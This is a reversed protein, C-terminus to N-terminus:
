SYSILPRAPPLVDHWRESMHALRARSGRARDEAWMIQIVADLVEVPTSPRTNQTADRDGGNPLPNTGSKLSPPAGQAPVGAPPPSDPREGSPDRAPPGAVGNPNERHFQQIAEDLGIVLRQWPAIVSPVAGAVNMGPAASEPEDDGGPSGRGQTSLSQGASVATGPLFAAVATAETEVLEFSLEEGSSSITLTLVTAVLPLSSEHLAVLQTGPSQEPPVPSPAVTSPEVSLSLAVLEASERGATAAYFQVNGGTLASFALATPDPLNPNSTDSLLSLGDPGGEFLALEGDGANGVVLDEFGAGSDFAFATVPDLGGSSITTTVPDPGDFGSILTLDNSGANVTLLDNSGNHFPDVFIPGPTQGVPLTTPNQDDFFGQGRGPLSTVNNSQSNSVAIDLKGDHNFDGVATAVPGYGATLRPGDTMTWTSGTGQGLLVTIDNSGTNSVLLDPQGNLDAVTLGTPDTGVAFGETGGIPPGFQGDGLGPYILVDNGGSNAVILDPIGDGNMDAAKVAGPALLGTAQTGVVQRSASSQKTAGYVVTVKSLSQNAFVFDSVGDGKLDAVALAIFQKVPEFPRFTGDGNGTLILVDGVANGILLDPRGDRDIDAVALGSPESGANYTVPPAFGGEGNGLEISVGEGGLIVLDSVGDRNLDAVRLVELGTNVTPLAVPNAFRGQGLGALVAVADSGSNTAVLDVPAGTTFSAAAVGSTGELSQVVPSGSSADIGSLGTGARYPVPAAFTSDGLNRLVSVQGTSRNSVVLDLKGNGTTDIAEVDSVGLGVALTVPAGFDVSIFRPDVPGTFSTSFFVSLTGVGDNRLVLDDLGDGTLDAAIVQGPLGGTARTGVLIFSGNRFAYFSVNNDQADVSALMPGQATAAVWTIDRSPSQPNVTVPSEFTGPEGLIGQRYLINGRSDIIFADIAGDGNVDAILPNALPKAAVLSSDLFQGNGNSLKISVYDYSYNIVIQDNHGDGNFDAAVASGFGNFDSTALDGPSAGAAYDIAPQFTGDGKGLFVEVQKGDLVALDLRHDGNLDRAILRSTASAAKRVYNGPQFTGDGDGLLIEVGGFAAAVLDTRGDGNFDGALLSSEGVGPVFLPLEFTGDGNGLLVSIGGLDGFQNATALDMRGDGNFDVAVAFTPLVGTPNIPANLFTGDGKSLLISSISGSTNEETIDFKGDGNFDATLGPAIGFFPIAKGFTGDGNGLLVTYETLLDPNGDGNFDAILDVYGVYSIPIPQQFTGDGNGLLVGQDTVVDLKGDRNFDGAGLFDESSFDEVDLGPQFSGDGNGLLLSAGEGAVLLDTKGDGNFDGPVVFGLESVEPGTSIPQFTGDGNSLLVVVKDYNYDTVALDTRGDGNIDAAVIWNAPDQTLYTREPQFTGDGNGFFVVVDTSYQDIAALDLRGDDNFDGTVMVPSAFAFDLEDNKAPQFTGDGNGLLVSMTAQSGYMWILDIKGDGNFDGSATEYASSNLPTFPLNSDAQSLTLAYSGAGRASEVQLFYTGAPMHQDLLDNANGLSLGDSRALVHGQADLLSLRTVLGDPIVKAILLGEASMDIQYSDVEGSQGPQLIGTQLTLTARLTNSELLVSSIAVGRVTVDYGSLTLEDPRDPGQTALLISSGVVDGAQSFGDILVANSVRPLPSDLEITQVGDGAIAFDITNSGGTAANSDLIAQRLTGPGHDTSTSVVFVGDTIAPVVTSIPAAADSVANVTLTRNGHFGPLPTFILGALVANLSSLPGHYILKGTGNGSWNPGNQTSLQLTGDAASIAVDWQAQLPGAEPDTLAIADGDGASFVVSQGAVDRDYHTPAQLVAQRPASVESTNGEPDTATATIAPLGAPTTFPIDFIVQGQDDTTVNMSGLYDQAEGLGSPGYSPSAFFELRLTTSPNSGGLWGEWHGASTM